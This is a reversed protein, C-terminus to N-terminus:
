VKYPANIDYDPYDVKQQILKLQLAKYHEKIKQLKQPTTLLKSDEDTAAPLSPEGRSVWFLYIGFVPIALAKYRDKIYNLNELSCEVKLRCSEYYLWSLDTLDTFIIQCNPDKRYDKGKPGFETGNEGKFENVKKQLFQYDSNVIYRKYYIIPLAIASVTIALPTLLTGLTGGIVVVVAGGLCGMGCKGIKFLANVNSNINKVKPDFM